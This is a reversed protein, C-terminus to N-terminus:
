EYFFILFCSLILAICNTIAKVKDSVVIDNIMNSINIM